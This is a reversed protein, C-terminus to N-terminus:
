KEYVAVTTLWDISFNPRRPNDTVVPIQGSFSGSRWGLGNIWVWCRCGLNKELDNAAHPSAVNWLIPPVTM